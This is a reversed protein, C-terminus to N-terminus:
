KNGIVLKVEDNKTNSSIKLFYVGRPLSLKSIDYNAESAGQYIKKNGLHYSRGTQDTIIFNFNGKYTLPLRINLNGQVPNPYVIPKRIRQTSGQQPQVVTQESSLLVDKSVLTGKYTRTSFNGGTYYINSDIVAAM